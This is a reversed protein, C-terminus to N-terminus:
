PNGETIAASTIRIPGGIVISVTNLEIDGGGATATVTLDMVHAVNSDVIRAWSATGTADASSDETIANLTLVGASVTGSPYSMTLTGLLVETTIAAGTAPPTGDYFSLTAPGAGADMATIIETLRANRLTVNMGITM